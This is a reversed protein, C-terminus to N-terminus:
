PTARQFSIIEDFIVNGRANDKVKTKYENKGVMVKVYPDTKDWFVTHEAVGEIKYM